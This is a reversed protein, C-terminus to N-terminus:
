WKWPMSSVIWDVFIGLIILAGIQLIRWEKLRDIAKGHQKSTDELAAIKNALIVNQSEISIILTKELQVMREGCTERMDDLKSAIVDLEMSV